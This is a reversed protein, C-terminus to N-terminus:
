VVYLHLCAYQRRQQSLTQGQLCDTVPSDEAVFEEELGELSEVKLCIM